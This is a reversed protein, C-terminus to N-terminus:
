KKTSSLRWPASDEVQDILTWLYEWTCEFGAAGKHGGGSPIPGAEGILVALEGCHIGPNTSYLSVAIYKGKVLNFVVMLDFAGKAMDFNNVFITSNRLSGNCLIARRGAFKAVFSSSVILDTAMRDRAKQAIRGIALNTELDGGNILSEWLETNRPDDNNVYLFSQMPIVRDRWNSGSRWCDWDGILKIAEPIPEASFYMWSLECGSLGSERIGKLDRLEASKDAIAISTSHHDIWVFNKFTRAMELMIDVPELSFDVMFVTDNVGDWTSRDLPLGYNTPYFEIETFGKIREFHAVIAAAAKGDADMHYIIRHL